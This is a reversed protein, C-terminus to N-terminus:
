NAGVIIVNAIMGASLDSINSDIKVKVETVTDNEKAETTEINKPTFEAKPSKYVVTGSIDTDPLASTRIIVNQNLKVKSNYKQPVYVKIWYESNEQVSIVNTGSTVVQGVDIAKNLLIGDVPSKITCKDLQLNASDLAAQLQEVNAEAVKIAQLTSGEKLLSYQALASEYNSEAISIAEVTSGSKVLDLQSKSVNLNDKANILQQKAQDLANQADDVQQQSVVESDFLEKQRKLNSNRYDYNTQSSNVVDLAQQYLSEAKSIEEPRAGKKAEDLKAKAVNVEAEAKSLLQPRTGNKLEELSAEAGEIAAKSKRVQIEYSAPDILAIVDDKHVINGEDLLVKIIKGSVESNIDIQTAEITGSLELDTKEACASLSLAIIFLFVFFARKMISEM